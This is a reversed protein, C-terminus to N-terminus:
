FAWTFCSFVLKTPSTLCTLVIKPLRLTSSFSGWHCEACLACDILIGHRECCLTWWIRTCGKNRGMQGQRTAVEQLTFKFDRPKWFVLEWFMNTFDSGNLFNSFNSLIAGPPLIGSFNSQKHDTPVKPTSQKSKSWKICGIGILQSYFFFFSHLMEWEKGIDDLHIQLQPSDEMGLANVAQVWVM